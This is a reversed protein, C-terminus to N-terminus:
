APFKRNPFTELHLKAAFEKVQEVFFMEERGISGDAGPTKALDSVRVRAAYNLQRRLQNPLNNGCTPSRHEGPRCPTQFKADPLIPSEVAFPLCKRQNAEVLPGCGYLVTTSFRCATTFFCHCLGHRPSMRRKTYNEM